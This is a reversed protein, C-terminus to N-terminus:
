PVVLIPHRRAKLFHSSVTGLIKESTTHKVMGLVVLEPKLSNALDLLKEGPNGIELHTIPNEFRKKVLRAANTLTEEGLRRLSEIVEDPVPDAMQPPKQVVFALHLEAEYQENLSIALELARASEETGDYGVLIRRLFFSPV